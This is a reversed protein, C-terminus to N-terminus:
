FDLGLSVYFHVRHTHSSWGISAGLPGAFGSNYYYGLQVGYVPKRSFIDGLKENHEAIGTGITLINPDFIIDNPNFGVKNVLLQYARDCVEIKKKHLLNSHSTSATPPVAVCM